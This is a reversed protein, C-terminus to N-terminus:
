HYDIFDVDTANGDAFKFTIRWNARVTIAWHGKLDGKLKHLKFSPRDLDTIDAAADLAALITRLRDLMDAPLKRGDDTDYLRQLGRHKFGEIM